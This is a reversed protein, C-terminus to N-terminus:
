CLERRYGGYTCVIPKREAMAQRFLEYIRSPVLGAAVARTVRYGPRVRIRDPVDPGLDSKM